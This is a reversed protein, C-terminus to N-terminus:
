IVETTGGAATIKEAASKSFRNAKVTLAKTLEGGGLVKLGDEKERVIRHELLLDITVVTGAEFRELDDLNAIAYNKRFLINNFGRKHPLRRHLPTQGGEFGPKTSGRAKDGKTGRGATVGHGSGIGRGIRKRERTSGEAPRLDVLKM